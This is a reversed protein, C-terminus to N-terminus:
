KQNAKWADYEKIIQCEHDYNIGDHPNANAAAFRIGLIHEIIDVGPIYLQNLIDAYDTLM